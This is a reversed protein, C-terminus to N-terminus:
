RLICEAGRHQIGTITCLLEIAPAFPRLQEHPHRDRDSAEGGLGRGLWRHIV